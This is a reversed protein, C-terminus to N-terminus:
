CLCVFFICEAILVFVSEAVEEIKMTGEKKWRENIPYVLRSSLSLPDLLLLLTTISSSHPISPPTNCCLSSITLNCIIWGCYSHCFSSINRNREIVSPPCSKVAPSTLTLQSFLPPTLSMYVYNLPPSHIKEKILKNLLKLMFRFM